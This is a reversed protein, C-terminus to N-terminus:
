DVNRYPIPKPDLWSVIKDKISYAFLHNGLPNYHGIFYKQLYQDWPLSSERSDRLQVLNMDFYEIGERALYDVTAQDDRPLGRRLQNLVGRPDFLVILL